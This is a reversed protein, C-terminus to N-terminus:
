LHIRLSKSKLVALAAFCMAVGLITGLPYEPVVFFGALGVDMDDLPDVGADYVGNGGVDVVIDYKGPILPAAWVLELFAGSVCSVTETTGPVREPIAMGDNWTTDKVVYMDYTNDVFGTGKAYVDQGPLFEDKTVAGSDCSEITAPLYTIELEPPLATSTSERSSFLGGCDLIEDDLKLLFGYNLYAGSAWGQVISTVTWSIWQGTSSPFAATSSDTLTYDGGDTVWDNTATGGSGGRGDYYNYENWTVGDQTPTASTGTGEVWEHTVRCVRISYGEAPGPGLDYYYYLSLTASIITAGSLEPPLNFQVLTRAIRVYDMGSMARIELKGDAGYNYDPIPPYVAPYYVMKWDMIISADKSPTSLTLSIYPISAQVGGIFTPTLMAACLLALIAIGLKRFYSKKM